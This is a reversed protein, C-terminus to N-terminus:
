KPKGDTRVGSDEGTRHGSVNRGPNSVKARKSPDKPIKGSSAGSATLLGLKRGPESRM